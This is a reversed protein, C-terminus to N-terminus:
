IKEQIDNRTLKTIGLGNKYLLAIIDAIDDDTKIKIYCKEIELVKCPMIQLRRIVEEGLNGTYWITYNSEESILDNGSLVNKIRGNELIIVEQAITQVKNLDHSSIMVTAGQQYLKLILKDLNESFKEDLANYPEDLILFNPSALLTRALGLNQKMGLSYQVVKKDLYQEMQLIEAIENIDAGAEQYFLQFLELNERGTLKDHFKPYELLAAVNKLAKKREKTVDYGKVKVTGSDLVINNLIGRFFMTKGAGNEGVLGVIKNTEIQYTINDLIQKKKMSKNMNSIELIYQSKEM